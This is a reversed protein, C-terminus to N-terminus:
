IVITTKNGTVIIEVDAFQNHRGYIKLIEVRLGGIFNFNIDRKKKPLTIEDGIQLDKM